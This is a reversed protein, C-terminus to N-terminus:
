ATSRAGWAAGLVRQVNGGLIGRAEAASYGGADLLEALRDYAPVPGTFPEPYDYPPRPLPDTEFRILREDDVDLGIGVHQPGIRGAIHDLHRLLDESSPRHDSLFAPFATVCVVGGTDGCADIQRDTLNRPHDHVATANSHTFIVPQRSVEMAELSSRRGVRSLDLLVGAEDLAEVAMRGLETLPLDSAEFCGDGNWNKWAHTLAVVGVGAAGFTPVLDLAEVIMEMGQFTPVVGISEGDGLLDLDAPERLWLVDDRGVLLERLRLLNRVTAEFGDIEAVPVFAVDVGSEVLADLSRNATEAGRAPSALPVATDIRLPGPAQSRGPESDRRDATGWTPGLLGGTALGTLQLFTRRSLGSPLSVSGM